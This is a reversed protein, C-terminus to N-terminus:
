TYYTLVIMVLNIFLRVGELGLTARVAGLSADENVCNGVLVFDVDFRQDTLKMMQIYMYTFCGKAFLSRVMRKVEHDFARCHQQLTIGSYEAPTYCLLYFINV